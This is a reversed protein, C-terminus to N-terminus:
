APTAARRKAVAEALAAKLSVLRAPKLLWSDMGADLCLQRSVGDATLAVIPLDQRGGGGSRVLRAVQTGDLNPMHLDVLMVDFNGSRLADLAQFGDGAEVVSHGCTTLLDCVVRRNVGIDDVVLVRLGKVQPRQDGAKLIPEVDFTLEVSTGKGLLSKLRVDGNLARAAARAVTLGLGAGQTMRTMTKDVREFAGFVVEHSGPPIGCGTDRVTVCLQGGRMDAHVDIRGSQTFKVANDVVARVANSVLHGDTIAWQPVSDTHTWSFEVKEEEPLMRVRQIAFDLLEPLEVRERRVSPNPRDLTSVALLADIRSLLQEGGHAVTRVLDRSEPDLSSDLLLDAVGLVSNLPTRLEHSVNALLRTKVANAAKAERAHAEAVERANRLENLAIRRALVGDIAGLMPTFLEEDAPDFAPRLNDETANGLMLARGGRLDAAWLVHPKGLWAGVVEGFPDRQLSSNLAFAPALPEDFRPPVKRTSWRPEWSDGSRELVVVMEVIHHEIISRALLEAWDFKADDSVETLRQIVKAVTRARRTARRALGLDRELESVRESAFDPTSAAM